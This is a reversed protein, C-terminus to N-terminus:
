FPNQAYQKFGIDHIDVNYGFMTNYNKTLTDINKSDKRTIVKVSPLDKRRPHYINKKFLYRLRHDAEPLSYGIFVLEKTKRLIEASKLWVPTINPNSYKKHWTPAIIVLKHLSSDEKCRDMSYLNKIDGEVKGKVTISQCNPCYQWNLSGHPKLLYLSKGKRPRHWENSAREEYNTRLEEHDRYNKFDVYYDIDYDIGDNYNTYLPILSNDLLTDYNLNIFSTNNNTRESNEFLKQIFIKHIKNETVQAADDIVKAMTYTFNDRLKELASYDYRNSIDRQEDICADMINLIDEVSPYTVNKRRLDIYFVEKLFRIVSDIRRDEDSYQEITKPMLESTVPVNEERSAGAGFVYTRM